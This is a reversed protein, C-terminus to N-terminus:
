RRGCKGKCLAAASGSKRYKAIIDSITSTPIKLQSAIQVQRLGELYKKIILDRLVSPTDM